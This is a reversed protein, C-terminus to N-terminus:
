CPLDTLPETLLVPTARRDPFAEATAIGFPAHERDRRELEKRDGEPLSRM